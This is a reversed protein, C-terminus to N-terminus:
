FSQLKNNITNNRILLFEVKYTSYLKLCDKEIILMLLPAGPTDRLHRADLLLVSLILETFDTNSRESLFQVTKKKWM